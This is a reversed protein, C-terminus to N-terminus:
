KPFVFKCFDLLDEWTKIEKTNIFFFLFFFNGVPIEKILKEDM